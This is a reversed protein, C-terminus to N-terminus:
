QHAPTRASLQGHPGTFLTSGVRVRGRAMSEALCAHDAPVHLALLRKLSENLPLLAMRPELIRVRSCHMSRTQKHLAHPRLILKGDDLVAGAVLDGLPAIGHPFHRSRIAERTYGAQILHTPERPRPHATARARLSNRHSGTHSQLHKCHLLNLGGLEIELKDIKDAAWDDLHTRKHRRERLRQCKSAGLLRQTLGGVRTDDGVDM